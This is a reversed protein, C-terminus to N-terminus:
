TYSDRKRGMAWGIIWFLGCFFGLVFLLWRGNSACKYALFISIVIGIIGGIIQPTGFDLDTSTQALLSLM